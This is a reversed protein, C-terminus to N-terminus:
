AVQGAVYPHGIGTRRVGGVYRRGLCVVVPLVFVPVATLAVGGRAVVLHGQGGAHEQLQGGLHAGGLVLVVAVDGAHHFQVEDIGLGVGDAAAIDVGLVLVARALHHGIGVVHRQRVIVGGGSGVLHILVVLVVQLFDLSRAVEDVVRTLDDDVVAVGAVQLVPGARGVVRLGVVPIDLTADVDVVLHHRGIGARRRGVGALLVDRQGNGGTRVALQLEDVHLGVEIGVIGISSLRCLDALVAHLHVVAGLREHQVVDDAIPVPALQAGVLLLEEDLFGHDGHRRAGVRGGAARAARKRLAGHQQGVVVVPGDGFPGEVVLVELFRQRRLLNVAHGVHGVHVVGLLVEVHRGVVHEARRVVQAM